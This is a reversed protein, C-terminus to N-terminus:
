QDGDLKELAKIRNWLEDMEDLSMEKLNIGQEKADEEMEQFRRIFKQNTRNLALMPDIRLLRSLNVATFLLDGIEGEIHQENDSQAATKLEAIEEYLKNWVPEDTEWDFGIRSVKKQIVYSRYLPPLSRPVNELVSNKIKKGEVKEKISEWQELIEHVTGMEADGFIHPHRRILKECIGNLVEHTSFSNEEEKMSCIMTLLLFLDGLEEKINDDDRNDIANVCEYTEEILKDRMTSPTQEKDWACGAPGRLKNIIRYLRAFSEQITDPADTINPKEPL